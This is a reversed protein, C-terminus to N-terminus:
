SLVYLRKKFKIDGFQYLIKRYCYLNAITIKISNRQLYLYDRFAMSIILNNLIVNELHNMM